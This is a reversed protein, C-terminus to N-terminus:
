IKLVYIPTLETIIKAMGLDETKQIVERGRYTFQLERVNSIIKKGVGNAMEVEFFRKNNTEFVNDVTLSDLFKYGGGHPLINANKLRNYVGMKKARKTFGLSEIQDKTFNKNGRVLYSPIDARISVPFIQKKNKIPQCGLVIENPNLLGQHCINSIIKGNFLTNFAIERRKNAFEEAYKYFKFYKKLEQGQLTHLPGWPTKIRNSMELLKKSHNWYLGFGVDSDEKLEPCGAHMIAAYKPFNTSHNHVEFIDIFHNGKYFDWKIKTGKIEINSKQLEKIKNILEKPKPVKDISGVLMGCANPLSDLITLNEKGGGWSLKGGYSIGSEWRGINRTVTEDPTTIFTANPEMGLGEQVYHIKALGYKMNEQSLRSAADNIGTSFIHKKARELNIKM